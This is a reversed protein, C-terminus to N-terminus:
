VDRRDQHRFVHSDCVKNLSVSFGHLGCRQNTRHFVVGKSTERDDHDCRYSTCNRCAPLIEPVPKVMDRFNVQAQKTQAARM